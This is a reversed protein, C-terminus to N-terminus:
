RCPRSTRPRPWASCRLARVSVVPDFGFLDFDSFLQPKSVGLSATLNLGAGGPGGPNSTLLGKSTGTAKSYSIAVQVDPHADPHAWDMPVNVKACNTTPAQPYGRKITADFACVSWNIPQDLYRQPIAPVAPDKPGSAATASTTATLLPVLVAVAVVAAFKRPSPM